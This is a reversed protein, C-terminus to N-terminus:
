QTPFTVLFRRKQSQSYKFGLHSATRLNVALNVASTTKVGPVVSEKYMTEVMKVLEKGTVENDPMLSFLVGRQVYKPKSSFVVFRKDWAKEIVFPLVVKDDVTKKDVPLWIADNKNLVEKTLRSYEVLAQELNNVKIANFEFGQEKSAVSAIDVLWQNRKSYVIFIRKVNPALEKLNEFMVNPNAEPTIGSSKSKSSPRMLNAGSVWPVKNKFYRGVKRGSPGLAIVMSPKEKVTQDALQAAQEKTLKRNVEVLKVTGRYQKQIGDIIQNYVVGRPAPTKPYVVALTALCMPSVMFLM